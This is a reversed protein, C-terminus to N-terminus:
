GCRTNANGQNKGRLLTVSAVMIPEAFLKSRTLVHHQSQGPDGRSGHPNGTRKPNQRSVRAQLSTEPGDLARPVGWRAHDETVNELAIPITLTQAPSLGSCTSTSPTTHPILHVPTPPALRTM